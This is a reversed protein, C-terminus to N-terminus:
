IWTLRKSGHCPYMNGSENSKVGMGILCGSEDTNKVGLEPHNNFGRESHFSVHFFHYPNTGIKPWMSKTVKWVKLKPPSPPIQVGSVRSPRGTKLVPAIM